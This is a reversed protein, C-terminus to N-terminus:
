IHILSLLYVETKGSGTVGHLLFGEHRRADIAADIRALAETQAPSLTVDAPPEPEAGAFPDLDLLAREIRIKRQKELTTVPSDGCQASKVLDRVGLGDPHEALIRLVRARKPHKELLQAALVLAEEPPMALHARAVTAEATEKRVGGPVCASLAEGWACAYVEAIWRSLGVLEPTLLPGDDLLKEIPKPGEVTVAPAAADDIGDPEDPAERPVIPATDFLAPAAAPAAKAARAAQKPKAPKAPDAPEPPDPAEAFGVFWGAVARPGFPVRVRRGPVLGSEMGEPVAYTFATRVPLPLCVSAYRM